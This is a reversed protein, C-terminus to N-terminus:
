KGGGVVRRVALAFGDDSRHDYYVGGGSALVYWACPSRGSADKKQWACESSTWLWDLPVDFFAPDLAPAHRTRDIILQLEDVEPMRWDSFGACSYQACAKELADQSKGEDNVPRRTFMLGLAPLLVAVHDTADASLQEGNAGIKIKEIFRM